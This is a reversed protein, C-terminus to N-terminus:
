WGCSGTDCSFARGKKRGCKLAWLWGWSDQLPLALSSISPSYVRIAFGRMTRLTNRNMWSLWSWRVQLPGPGVLWGALASLLFGGVVCFFVYLLALLSANKFSNWTGQNPVARAPIRGAILCEGLVVTLGTWMVAGISTAVAYAVAARVGYFLGTLGACWAGALGYVLPMIWVMERDKPLSWHLTDVLQYPETPDDLLLISPVSKGLKWLLSRDVVTHVSLWNRDM